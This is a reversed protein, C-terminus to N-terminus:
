YFNTIYHIKLFEHKFHESTKLLLWLNLTKFIVRFAFFSTAFIYTIKEFM